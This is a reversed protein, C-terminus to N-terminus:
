KYIKLLITESGKKLTVTRQDISGVKYGQIREGVRLWKGNILAMQGSVVGTVIARKQIPYFPDNVWPVSEINKTLFEKPGWSLREGEQKEVKKVEVEENAKKQLEELLKKDVGANALGTMGLLLFVTLLSVFCKEMRRM